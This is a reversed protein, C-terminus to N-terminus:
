KFLLIDNLKGFLVSLLRGAEDYEYQYTEGEPNRKLIPESINDYVYDVNQGNPNRYTIIRGKIDYAFGMKAYRGKELLLKEATLKGDEDYEGKGFAIFLM